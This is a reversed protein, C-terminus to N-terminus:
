PETGPCLFPITYMLSVALGFLYNILLSFVNLERLKLPAKKQKLYKFM